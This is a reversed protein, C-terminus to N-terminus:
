QCELNQNLQCPIVWDHDFKYDDSDDGYETYSCSGGSGIWNADTLTLKSHPECGEFDCDGTCNCWCWDYEEVCRKDGCYTPDPIATLEDRTYNYELRYCKPKTIIM